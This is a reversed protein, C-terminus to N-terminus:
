FAYQTMSEHIANGAKLIFNRIKDKYNTSFGSSAIYEGDEDYDNDTVIFEGIYLTKTQIRKGDYQNEVRINTNEELLIEKDGIIEYLDKRAKKTTVNFIALDESEATGLINVEEAIEKVIDVTIVELGSIFKAVKVMLNKDKLHKELVMIIKDYSLDNYEKIYRIRSPRSTLTDPLYDKNTTMIFLRKYPTTFVGDMLTLLNNVSARKEAKDDTDNSVSDYYNLNYTKEFEDFLLILDQDISNIFGAINPFAKNILIVPANIAQCIQKAVITKGTGKLGKLIIGFNKGLKSQVNIVRKVFDDDLNYIDKPFEFNDSVKRLIFDGPIQELEYIGRDLKDKVTPIDRYAYTIDDNIWHKKKKVIEAM